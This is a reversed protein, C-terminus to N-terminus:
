CRGRACQCSARPRPSPPMGLLGPPYCTGSVESFVGRGVDSLNLRRQPVLGLDLVVAVLDPQAGLAAAVVLERHHVVQGRAVGLLPVAHVAPRLHLDVLDQVGRGAHRRHEYLGPLPPGPGQNPAAPPRPSRSQSCPCPPHGETDHPGPCFTRDM